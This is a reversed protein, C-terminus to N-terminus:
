IDINSYYRSTTKLRSVIASLIIPEINDIITSYVDLLKTKSPM